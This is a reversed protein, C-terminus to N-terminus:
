RNPQFEDPLRMPRDRSLRVYNGNAAVQDLYEDSVGQQELDRMWQQALPMLRPSLPDIGAQERRVGEVFARVRRRDEEAWDRTARRQVAARADSHQREADGREAGLREIRAQANLVRTQADALDHQAADIKRRREAERSAAIADVLNLALREGAAVVEAAHQRERAADIAEREIEARKRMAEDPPVNGMFEDDVLQESDAKAREVETVRHECAALAQRAEALRDLVDPLEREPSADAKKGNRLKM